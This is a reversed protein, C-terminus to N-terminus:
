AVRSSSTRACGRRRPPVPLRGWAGPLRPPPLLRFRQQSSDARGPTFLSAEAGIAFAFSTLRRGEIRSLGQPATGQPYTFPREPSALAVLMNGDIGIVSAVSIGLGGEIAIPNVRFAGEVRRLNIGPFLPPGVAPPPFVLRLGAYDFAGRRFGIGRVPPPTGEISLSPFHFNAAAQFTEAPPGEYALSLDDVKM